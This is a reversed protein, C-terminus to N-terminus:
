IGPNLMLLSGFYGLNQLEDGTRPALADDSVSKFVSHSMTPFGNRTHRFVVDHLVRVTEEVPHEVLDRLLIWSNLTIVLDNIDSRCAHCSHRLRKIDDNCQIEVAIDDRINGGLYSSGYAKGTRGVDPGSNGHEFRDM